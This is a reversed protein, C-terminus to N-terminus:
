PSIDLVDEYSADTLVLFTLCSIGSLVRDLGTAVISRLTKLAFQLDHGISDGGAYFAHEVIVRMSTRAVRGFIQNEAFGLRGRLQLARAKSLKGTKGKLWFAKLWIALGCSVREFVARQVRDVSKAIPPVSLRTRMCALSALEKVYVQTDPAQRSFLGRSPLQFSFYTLNVLLVGSFAVPHCSSLFYTLNVLLAGLPACAPGQLVTAQLAVPFATQM